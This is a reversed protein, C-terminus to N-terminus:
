ASMARPEPTRLGGGRAVTPGVLEDLDEDVDLTFLAARARERAVDLPCPWEIAPSAPSASVAPSAERRGGECPDDGTAPVRGRGAGREAGKQTNRGSVNEPKIDRHGVGGALEELARRALERAVEPPAAEEAARQQAELVDTSEEHVAIPRQESAPPAPPPPSPSADPKPAREREIWGQWAGEMLPETTFADAKIRAFKAWARAVLEAGLDPRVEAAIAACTAPIARPDLRVHGGRGHPGREAGQSRDLSGSLSLGDPRTRVRGSMDRFAFAVQRDDAPAAAAAKRRARQERKRVAEPNTSFKKLECPEGAEMGAAGGPRGVEELAPASARPMWEKVRSPERDARGVDPAVSGAREATAGHHVEKHHDGAVAISAGELLMRLERALVRAHSDSLAEIAAALAVAKEREIGNM